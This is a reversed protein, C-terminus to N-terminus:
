SIIPNIKVVSTDNITVISRKTDQNIPWYYIACIYRYFVPQNRVLHLCEFIMKWFRAPLAHENVKGLTMRLQSAIGLREDHLPTANTRYIRYFYHASIIKAPVLDGQQYIGELARGAGAEKLTKIFQSESGKAIKMRFRERSMKAVIKGSRVPIM